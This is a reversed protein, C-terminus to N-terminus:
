IEILYEIPLLRNVKTVCQIKVSFFVVSVWDSLYFSCELVGKLLEMLQAITDNVLTDIASFGWYLDSFLFM